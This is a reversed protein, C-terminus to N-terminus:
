SQMHEGIKVGCFPCYNVVIGNKQFDGSRIQVFSKTITAKELDFIQQYSVGRCHSDVLSKGLTECTTVIKNKVSCKKRM